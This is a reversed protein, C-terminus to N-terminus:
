KYGKTALHYRMVTRMGQTFAELDVSRAFLERNQARTYLDIWEGLFRTELDSDKIREVLEDTDLSSCALEDSTVVGEDLAAVLVGSSYDRDRLEREWTSVWNGIRAMRELDWITRRLASLDTTEFRSSHALDVDVYPFMVMNHLGNQCAGELNAMAPHESVLWSYEIADLTQDLDYRFLDSFAEYRPAATFGEEFATWVRSVFELTDADADPDIRDVAGNSLLLKRAEEFTTKDKEHEAIDDLTTIFMTLVTKQERVTAAADPDVCDLTFAPLLAYIWRWIFRDRIGISRDYDDAMAAISEPLDVAEVTELVDEPDMRFGAASEYIRSSDEDTTAM